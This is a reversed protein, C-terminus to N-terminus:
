VRKYIVVNRFLGEPIASSAGNKFSITMHAISENKISQPAQVIAGSYGWVMDEYTGALSEENEFKEAALVNWFRIICQAKDDDSEFEVKYSAYAEAPIDFKIYCAREARTITYPYTDYVGKGYIIESDDLTRLVEWGDTVDFAKRFANFEASVDSKIYAAVKFLDNLARAQEVTLGNSLGDIKQGQREIEESLQGIGDEMHNLHEAKLIQGSVFNQKIYESM